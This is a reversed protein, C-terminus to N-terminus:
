REECRLTITREDTRGQVTVIRNVLLYVRGRNANRIFTTAKLGDTSVSATHLEPRAPSGEQPSVSWSSTKIGDNPSGAVSLFDTWDTTYDIDAGPDILRYAM